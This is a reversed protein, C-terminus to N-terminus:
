SAVIFLFDDRGDNRGQIPQDPHQEKPEQWGPTLREDNHFWLGDDSPM